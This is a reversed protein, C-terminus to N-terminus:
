FSINDRRGYGLYLRSLESFFPVMNKSLESKFSLQSLSSKLHAAVRQDDEGNNLDKIAKNLLSKEDDSLDHSRVLENAYKWLKKKATM